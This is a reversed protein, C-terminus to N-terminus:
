GLSNGKQVCLQYQFKDLFFVSMKCNSFCRHWGFSVNPDLIEEDAGYANQDGDGDSGKKQELTEKVKADKDAAKKDAKM